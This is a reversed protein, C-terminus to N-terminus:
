SPTYQHFMCASVSDTPDVGNTTSSLVSKFAIIIHGKSSVPNAKERYATFNDDRWLIEPQPSSDPFSPSHPENSQLRQAAGVIGCLTCGTKSAFSEAM